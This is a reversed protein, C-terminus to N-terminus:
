SRRTKRNVHRKKSTRSKRKNRHSRRRRYSGGFLGGAFSGAAGGAAVPVLGAPVWRGGERKQVSALKDRTNAVVRVLQEANPGSITMIGFKFATPAATAPARAAALFAKARNALDQANAADIGVVGQVFSAINDATVSVGDRILEGSKLVVGVCCGFYGLAALGAVSLGALLTGHGITAITNLTFTGVASPIEKVVNEWLASSLYPAIKPGFAVAGAAATVKLTNKPNGAITKLLEGAGESLSTIATSASERWARRVAKFAEGLGDGGRQKYARRAGGKMAEDEAVASKLISELLDLEAEIDAVDLAREYDDGTLFASGQTNYASGIGGLRGARAVDEPNRLGASAAPGDM